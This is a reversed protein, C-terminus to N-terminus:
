VSLKLVPNRPHPFCIPHEPRRTFQDRPWNTDMHPLINVGARDDLLGSSLLNSPQITDLHLYFPLA